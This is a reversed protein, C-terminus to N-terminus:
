RHLYDMEALVQHVTKIFAKLAASQNDARFVAYIPVDEIRPSAQLLRVRGATLGVEVMKSPFIALASGKSVLHALMAVSSCTDLRAPLIGAAAFWSKVQWYNISGQPNCIIPLRALDQPSVTEPLDWSIPAVWGTEQAGLPILTFNERETANVLFALDLKHDHLDPEISSSTAIVCEPQLEPYNKHLLELIPALCIFAFGEAMGVRIRGRVQSTGADSIFDQVNDLIRRANPLLAQGDLSLRIGRGVRDFLLLGVEEELAKLRLSITPQSLNLRQAASEVSGLSAVWYFAELQALTVRSM